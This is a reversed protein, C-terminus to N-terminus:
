LESLSEVFNFIFASIKGRACVQSQGKQAFICASFLHNIKLKLSSKENVVKAECMYQYVLYWDILILMMSCCIQSYWRQKWQGDNIIFVILLLKM